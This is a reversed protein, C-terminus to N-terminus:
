KRKKTLNADAIESEKYTQIERELAAVRDIRAALTRFAQVVEDPMKGCYDAATQRILSALKPATM